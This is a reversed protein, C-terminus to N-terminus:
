DTLTIVTVVDISSTDLLLLITSCASFKHHFSRLEFLAKLQFFRSKKVLLHFNYISFIKITIKSNTM